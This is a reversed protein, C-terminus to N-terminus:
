GGQTDIDIYPLDPKLWTRALILPALRPLQLFNLRATTLLQGRQGKRQVDCSVPEDLVACKASQLLHEHLLGLLM